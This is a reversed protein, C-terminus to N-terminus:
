RRIFFNGAQSTLPLHTPYGGWEYLEMRVRAKRSLAFLVVDLVHWQFSDPSHYGPYRIVVEFYRSPRILHALIVRVFPVHISEMSDFTIRRLAQM